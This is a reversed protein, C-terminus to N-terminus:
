FGSLAARSLQGDQSHEGCDSRRAQRRCFSLDNRPRLRTIERILRASVDALEALASPRVLESIVRQRAIEEQWIAGPHEKTSLCELVIHGNNRHAVLELKRSAGALPTIEAFWPRLLQPESADLPRDFLADLCAHGLVNQAPSGLVADHSVGLYDMTNASAYAIRHDHEGFAILCGHPQVAGILHIPEWDCTTLDIIAQNEATEEM